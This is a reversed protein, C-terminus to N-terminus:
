NMLKHWTSRLLARIYVVTWVWSFNNFGNKKRAIAFELQNQVNSSDALGGAQCGVTKINEIFEARGNKLERLLLDYDGAIRFTEDFKGHIDFLSKHHMTGTHHLAMGHKMLWSVKSWPKGYLKIVNEDKDVKAAQGYVVKIGEDHAKKLHPVLEDLVNNNWFYDDAGLFCIWEGSAHELGKNWAHYIGRDPVSEWYTIRSDFSKIIGPSQDASGGDIIILEKNSYTQNVISKISREITNGANYSAIITTITPCIPVKASDGTNEKLSREM